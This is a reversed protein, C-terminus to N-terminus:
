QFGRLVANEVSHQRPILICHDQQESPGSLHILVDCLEHFPNLEPQSSPGARRRPLLSVGDQPIRSEFGQKEM